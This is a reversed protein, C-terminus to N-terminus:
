LTGKWIVACFIDFVGICFYIVFLGPHLTFVNSINIKVDLFACTAIHLEHQLPFCMSIFHIYDEVEVFFNFHFIKEVKV